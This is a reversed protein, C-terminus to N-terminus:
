SSNGTTSSSRRLPATGDPRRAVPAPDRRPCLGPRKEHLDLRRTSASLVECVWDPALTFYATDPLEVMREGAGGPSTRSWSTRASTCSRSTSSGGDAQAAGAGQPVSAGTRQRAYLEGIHTATGPPPHTHLTGDIIEAVQHAPADLVDQYTARRTSDHKHAASQAM